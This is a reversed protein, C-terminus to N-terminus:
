EDAKRNEVTMALQDAVWEQFHSVAEKISADESDGVLEDIRLSSKNLDDGEAVMYVKVPYQTERTLLKPDLRQAEAMPINILNTELRVSLEDGVPMKVQWEYRCLYESALQDLIFKVAKEVTAKEQLKATTTKTAMVQVHGSELQALYEEYTLQM